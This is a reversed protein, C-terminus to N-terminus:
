NFTISGPGNWRYVYFGPVPTVPTNGSVTAAAYATPYRIILTGSAGNTGDAVATNSACPGTTTNAYGRPSSAGGGGSGTAAAYLCYCANCQPPGQLGGGYINNCTRWLFAPQPIYPRWCGAIVTRYAGGGCSGSPVSYRKCSPAAVPYCCHTPDLATHNTIYPSRAQGGFAEGGGGFYCDSGLISTIYGDQGARHGDIPNNRTIVNLPESSGGASILSGEYM